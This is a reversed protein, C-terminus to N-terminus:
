GNRGKIITDVVAKLDNMEMPKCFFFQPSLSRVRKETADSHDGTVIICPTENEDRLKAVVRDCPEGPIHYDIICLSIGNRGALRLAQTGDAAETVAYGCQRLFRGLSARCFEDDDAILIRKKETEAM